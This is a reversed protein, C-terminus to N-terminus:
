LFRRPVGHYAAQYTKELPVNVYWGPALFLPMDILVDGVAIPEVYSTKPPGADYSALTLSKDPPSPETTGGFEACTIAHIRDSDRFTRPQVDVLLLHHGRLILDVAKALFVRFENYSSKNGASLIEIVAIIRDDSAHRVVISRQRRTYNETEINECLRM